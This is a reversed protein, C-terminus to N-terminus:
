ANRPTWTVGSEVLRANMEELIRADRRLGVTRLMSETRVRYRFLRRPIVDGFLGAEHLQRYLFWDEYSTLEPSYAFGLDFIRHRILATGDGAWNAGHVLRTWNGLPPYGDDADGLPTGTEDVYRSWTTVYALSEEHELAWLCREVFEPELMNDPDLPLVYRGSAVRVGLNRAAGLGTNPQTVLKLAREEALRDVIFDDPGLSGDNVLVVEDVPRTQESISDLTEEVHEHIRFYPVVV